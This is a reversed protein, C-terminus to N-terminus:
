FQSQNEPPEPDPESQNKGVPGTRPYRSQGQCLVSELFRWAIFSILPKAFIYKVFPILSFMKKLGEWGGGGADRGRLQPPPPPASIILRGLLLTIPSESYKLINPTWPLNSLKNKRTDVSSIGGLFSQPGKPSVLPACIYKNKTVIAWYFWIVWCFINKKIFLDSAFSLWITKSLEKGQFKPPGQPGVLTGWVLHKSPNNNISRM